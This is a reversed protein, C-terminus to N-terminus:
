KQGDFLRSGGQQHLAKIMSATKNETGDRNVIPEVEKEQKILHTDSEKGVVRFIGRPAQPQKKIVELEDSLKKIKEDFSKKLEEVDSAASMYLKCKAGMECCTDHMKQIRGADDKNNRAGYKTLAEAAKEFEFWFGEEANYEVKCDKILNELEDIAVPFDSSILEGDAKMIATYANTEKVAKVASVLKGLAYEDVKKTETPPDEGTVEKYAALIRSKITALEEKEYRAENEPRNIFEWSAKVRSATDIPFKHNKEDAFACMKQAEARETTEKQEALFKNVQALVTGLDLKNESMVKALAEVEEASGSVPYEKEEPEPQKFEHQEVTGDAKRVEFFTATAVAPRDVLSIECPDATFRTKGTEKDDWKKVYKGGISFGTYVGELTKQWEADDVIKTTIDIALETDNFDIGILKGAAVKSHMARLNGVSKGESAKKVDDSWNQFYEKSTAYDFIEGVSDVVEQTARGWVTRSSEDVKTIRAFVTATM